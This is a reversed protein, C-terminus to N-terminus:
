GVIVNFVAQGVGIDKQAAVGEPLEHAEAMLAIKDLGTGPQVINVVMIGVAVALCTTLLYWAVTRATLRAVAAGKLSGIGTIISAAILPVVIMKLLKLFLDGVAAIVQYLLTPAQKGSEISVSWPINSTNLLAGLIAGLVMGIIIQWYLKKYWPKLNNGSVPNQSNM